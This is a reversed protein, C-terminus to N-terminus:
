ICLNIDHGYIIVYPDIYLSSRVKEAMVEKPDEEHSSCNELGNKTICEAAREKQCATEEINEQVSEQVQAESQM